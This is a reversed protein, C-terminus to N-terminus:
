VANGNYESPRMGTQQKFFRVFNSPESFGVRYAVEQVPLSDDRLYKISLEMRLSDLTSQYCINESQLRRQLTRKSMHLRTALQDLKPTGTPLMSVLAGRIRQALNSEDLREAQASLFRELHNSLAPNKGPISAQLASSPFALINREAGFVVECEFFRRYDEARKPEPRCLHIAHPRIENQPLNCGFKKILAFILDVDEYILYPTTTADSVVLRVEQDIELGIQTGYSILKYYKLLLTLAQRIDASAQVSTILANLAPDNVFHLVQLSFADNGSLQIADQWYEDVWQKPVRASQSLSSLDLKRAQLLAESNYGAHELAHHIAYIWTALTTHTQTSMM